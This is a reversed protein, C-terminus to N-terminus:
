GVSSRLFLTLYKNLPCTLTFPTANFEAFSNHIVLLGTRIEPRCDVFIAVHDATCPQSKRLVELEEATGRRDHFIVSAHLAVAARSRRHNKWVFAHRHFGSNFGLRHFRNRKGSM